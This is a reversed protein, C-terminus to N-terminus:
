YETLLVEYGQYSGVPEISKDSLQEEMIVRVTRLGRVNRDTTTGCDLWWM